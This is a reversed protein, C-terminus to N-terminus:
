DGVFVVLVKEFSVLSCVGIIDVGLNILFSNGIDIV